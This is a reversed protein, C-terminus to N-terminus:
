KKQIIWNKIEEEIISIELRNTEVFEDVAKKVGFNLEIYGDQQLRLKKNDIKKTGDFYDHGGMFYGNDLKSWYSQINLKVSAYDHSADIYIFHFFNNPFIDLAEISNLRIPLICRNEELCRRIVEKYNREHFKIDYFKYYESTDWLDIAVAIEPNCKCLHTLNWGHDVGIECINKVGGILNLVKYIEYRSKLTKFLELYNM